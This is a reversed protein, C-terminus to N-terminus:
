QTPKKIQTRMDAANGFNLDAYFEHSMRFVVQYSIREVQQLIDEYTPNSTRVATTIFLVIKQSIVGHLANFGIVTAPRDLAHVTKARESAPITPEFGV